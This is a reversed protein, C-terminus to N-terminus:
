TVTDPGPTFPPCSLSVTCSPKSVSKFKKTVTSVDAGTVFLSLKAMEGVWAVILGPWDALKSIFTLESPETVWGTVNAQEPRGSPALQPNLGAV